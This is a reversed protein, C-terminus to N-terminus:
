AAKREAATEPQQRVPQPPKKAARKAKKAAVRKQAKYWETNWKKVQKPHAAKWARSYANRAKRRREAEAKSIKQTAMNTKEKTKM